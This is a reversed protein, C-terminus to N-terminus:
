VSWKTVFLTKTDIYSKWWQRATSLRGGSAAIVWHAPDDVGYYRGVGTADVAFYRWEDFQGFSVKQAAAPWNHNGLACEWGARDSQIGPRPRFNAYEDALMKATTLFGYRLDFARHWKAIEDIETELLNDQIAGGDYSGNWNPGSVAAFYLGSEGLALGRVLGVPVGKSSEANKAELACIIGQTVPGIIGDKTVHHNGQERLVCEETQPGFVGDETIPFTKQHSNLAVQLAWVDWGSFGKKFAYRFNSNPHGGGPLDVPQTLTASNIQVGMAHLKSLGELAEKTAGQMGEPPLWNSHAPQVVVTVPVSSPM